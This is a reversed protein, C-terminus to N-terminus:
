AWGRRNRGRKDQARIPTKQGPEPTRAIRPDDRRHDLRNCAHHVMPHGEILGDSGGSHVRISFTM